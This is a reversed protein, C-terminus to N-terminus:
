RVRTVNSKAFKTDVTQQVKAVYRSFRKGNTDKVNKKVSGDAGLVARGVQVQDGNAKIRFFKVVAGEAIAKGTTVQLRDAKAGNNNASLKARIKERVPPEVIPDGFTVSDSAQSEPIVEGGIYGIATVNAVGETAGQFVYNVQGDEGTPNTAGSTDDQVDGPGARLFDVDQLEIPEGNQDIATYTMIVTSGVPVRDAGQQSLTFTSNAFDVEYFTVTPGEGEIDVPADDVNGDEDIVSSPADVWTGVPTVDGAATPFVFFEANGDVLDTTVSSNNSVGDGEVEIAVEVDDVPNGFQDTATVDYAVNDTTPALPLVGSQQFRDDSLTIVVDGGNLPATSSWNVDETDSADAGAVTATVTDEAEGDDDFDESREIAVLFSAVGDEDTVVTISQGLSELEGTEDGEAPTADEEDGSTFFTDGDVTLTVVQNAVPNEDEDLVLVEGQQATGPTGPEGDVDTDEDDGEAIEGGIEVTTGEAAEGQAFVVDVTNIAGADNTEPTTDVARSETYAATDATVTGTETAQDGIEAAPDDLVASFEGNANTTVRINATDVGTARDFVADGLGDANYSLDVPRAPLGPGDGNDLALSGAITVQGGASGAIRGDNTTGDFTIVAQGAQVELVESVPVAGEGTTPDAVAGAFLTYTGELRNGDEDEFTPLEITALGNTAPVEETEEEADAAPFRDSEGDFSTFEWYYEVTQDGELEAGRQDVIQVTIDDADYEDYDFIAGNDSEAELADAAPVYEEVVVDASRKDGVAASYGFADTADAYYYVTGGAQDFTAEGNADTFEAAGVGTANSPLVRAGAIPAGNQDLVTVTVEAGDANADGAEATVTTITQRYLAFAETDNTADAAQVLIQNNSATFDYGTIDLVGAWAGSEADTDDAALTSEVLQEGQVFESGEALSGDLFSLTPLSEPDSSTGKVIVPNGYPRAEYPSQFVGLADGETINTTALNNNVEVPASEDIDNINAATFQGDARIVVNDAGAIGSPNWEYSFVGNDNRNVTAIPTFVPEDVTNDLTYSFTVSTVNTGGLATLRYTNNTGDNNASINGPEVLDVATNALDATLPEANAIAPVGTIALAAIATTALGRKIGSSNM